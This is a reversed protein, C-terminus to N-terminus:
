CLERGMLVLRLIIIHSRRGRCISDDDVIICYVVAIKDGSAQTVQHFANLSVYLFTHRRENEDREEADYKECLVHVTWSKHPLHQLM